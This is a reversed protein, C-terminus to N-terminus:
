SPLIAASFTSVAHLVGALSGLWFAEDWFNLAYSRVRERRFFAFCMSIFAYASVWWALSHIVNRSNTALIIIIAVLLKFGIRWLIECLTNRERQPSM